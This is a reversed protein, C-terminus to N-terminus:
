YIKKMNKLIEELQKNWQNLIKFKRLNLTWIIKFYRKKSLRKSNEKKRRMNKIKWTSQMVLEIFLLISIKCRSSNVDDKNVVDNKIIVRNVEKIKEKIKQLITEMNYYWCLKLISEKKEKDANKFRLWRMAKRLEKTTDNIKLNRRKKM